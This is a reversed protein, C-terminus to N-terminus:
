VIRDTTPHILPYEANDTVAKMFNSDVGISINFNHIDGEQKKCTIFERIDPHYVSMVAMNAGDRKGGQTIMSSVRSLTKLVEIPGWAKGQTTNIPDGKPRINSLSFGTGGGYKQVMAADTATKMIDQMSDELPLVFCGSLTGAPTGANMLTPSNPLFYLGSLMEYFDEEVLQIDVPLSMYKTEIAAIAKAVRRFMQEANEQPKGDSDKLYYRTELITEAQDTLTVM